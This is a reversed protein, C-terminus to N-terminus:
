RFPKGIELIGKTSVLFGKPEDSFYLLRRQEGDGEKDMLPLAPTPLALNTLSM